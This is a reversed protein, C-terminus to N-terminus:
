VGNTDLSTSVGQAVDMLHLGNEIDGIIVALQRARDELLGDARGKDKAALRQAADARERLYALVAGREQITSIGKTVDTTISGSM